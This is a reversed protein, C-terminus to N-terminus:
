RGLSRWGYCQLWVPEVDVIARLATLRLKELEARKTREVHSYPTEATRQVFLSRCIAAPTPM